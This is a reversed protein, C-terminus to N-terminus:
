GAEFDHDVVLECKVSVVVPNSNVNWEGGRVARMVEVKERQTEAYMSRKVKASEAEEIIGGLDGHEAGLTLGSVLVHGRRELSPMEWFVLVDLAAPNYLPFVTHYSASPITPYTRSLSRRVLRRKNQRVLYSIDESDFTLTQNPQSIDTLSSIVCISRCSVGSFHTCSVELPPPESPDIEEGRLVAGIKRRVYKRTGEIGEAGDEWRKVSFAVRAVQSPPLDVRLIVVHAAAKSRWVPVSVWMYGDTPSHCSWSPSMTSIQSIRLSTSPTTNEVDFSLSFAADGGRGPESSISIEFAPQVQVSLSARTSRFEGDDKM